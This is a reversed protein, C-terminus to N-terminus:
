APKILLAQELEKENEIRLERALFPLITKAREARTQADCDPYLSDAYKGALDLLSELRYKSLEIEKENLEVKKKKYRVKWQAIEDILKGIGDSSNANLGTNVEPNKKRLLRNYIL